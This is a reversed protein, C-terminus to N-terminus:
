IGELIELTRRATEEWSFLKAREKGAERLKQAFSPDNLVRWMAEAMEKVSKPDVLVAADGAVEPLSSINSTIVPAGLSMAELVPLGFGEYLSPYVFADCSKYLLTLEEDSVRGTFIVEERAKVAAATGILEKTKWRFVGAIVLKHPISKSRKLESFAEILRAVNKRPHIAGAYLIFPEFEGLREKLKNWAGPDIKIRKGLNSALPIVTIKKSDVNLFRCIDKKSNESITVIRKAKKIAFRFYHRQYVGHFYNFSKPIIFPTMDMIFVVSPTNGFYSVINNTFYIVDPKIRRAALPVAIHPFIFQDWVLQPIFRPCALVEQKIATGYLQPHECNSLVFYENDPRLRAMELLMNIAVRRAGGAKHGWGIETVIKM